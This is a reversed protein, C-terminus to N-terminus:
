VEPLGRLIINGIPNSCTADSYIYGLRKEEDTNQRMLTDKMILLDQRSPTPGDCTTQSNWLTLMSKRIHIYKTKNADLDEILDPPLVSQIDFSEGRDRSATEFEQKLAYLNDGYEKATRLRALCQKSVPCFKECLESMGRSYRMCIYLLRVIAVFIGAAISHYFRPSINHNKNLTFRTQRHLRAM